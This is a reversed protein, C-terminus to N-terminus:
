LVVLKYITSTYVLMPNFKFQLFQVCTTLGPYNKRTFSSFSTLNFNHIKCERKYYNLMRDIEITWLFMLKTEYIGLVKSIIPKGKKLKKKGFFGIQLLLRVDVVGGGRGLKIILIRFIDNNVELGQFWICLLGDLFFYFLIKKM